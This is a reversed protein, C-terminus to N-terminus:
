GPVRALLAEAQELGARGPAACLVRGHLGDLVKVVGTEAGPPGLLAYGLGLADIEREVEDRRAGTVDFALFRVADGRHRAELLLFGPTCDRAIPCLEHHFTVLILDGRKVGELDQPVPISPQTRRARVLLQLVEETRGQAEVLAGRARALGAWLVACALGLVAAAALGAALPWARRSRPAGRAEGARITALLRARAEPELEPRPVDPGLSRLLDDFRGDGHEDHEDHENM